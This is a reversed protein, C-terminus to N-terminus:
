LLRMQGRVWSTPRSRSTPNPISPLGRAASLHHAFQWNRCTAYKPDDAHPDDAPVADADFPIPRGGTLTVHLGQVQLEHREGPAAEFALHANNQWRRTVGCLYWAIPPEFEDLQVQMLDLEPRVHRSYGGHMSRACHRTLDVGTVYKLWM